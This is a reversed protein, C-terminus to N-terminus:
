QYRIHVGEVTLESDNHDVGDPVDLCDIPKLAKASAVAEELSTGNVPVFLDFTVKVYAGFGRQNHKSRPM